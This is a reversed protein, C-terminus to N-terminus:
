WYFRGFPLFKVYRSSGPIPVCPGPIRGFDMFTQTKGDCLLQNCLSDPSSLKLIEFNSTPQTYRLPHFPHFTHTHTISYPKKNSSSPVHSFLVALNLRFKSYNPHDQYERSINFSWKFCPKENQM